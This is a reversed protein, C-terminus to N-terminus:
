IFILFNNSVLTHMVLFTTKFIFLVTLRMLVAGTNVSNFVASALTYVESSLYPGQKHQNVPSVLLSLERYLRKDRDENSAKWQKVITSSSLIGLV